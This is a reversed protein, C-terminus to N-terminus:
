LFYTFSGAGDPLLVPVPAQQRGDRWLRVCANKNVKKTSGSGGEKPCTRCAQSDDDGMVGNWKTGGKGSFCMSRLCRDQAWEGAFWQRTGGDNKGLCVAFLSDLSTIVDRKEVASLATDMEVAKNDKLLLVDKGSPLGASAQSPAPTIPLQAPGFTPAAAEPATNRTVRNSPRTESSKEPSRSLRKGKGKTSAKKRQATSSEPRSDEMTVDDGISTDVNDDTDAPARESVRRRDERSAREGRMLETQTKMLKAAAEMAAIEEDSANQSSM